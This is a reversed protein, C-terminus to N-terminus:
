QEKKKEADNAATAAAASTGTIVNQISGGHADGDKYIFQMSSRLSSQVQSEHNFFLWLALGWITASLLRYGMGGKLIHQAEPSLSAMKRELLMLVLASIVRSFMYMNVQVNVQSAEGWVLFGAIGGMLAHHWPANAKGGGQALRLLMTGLKFIVGAMALNGAHQRTMDRIKEWVSYWSGKSWVMQLVFTHPARLKVGYVIGNRVTALADLLLSYSTSDLITSM